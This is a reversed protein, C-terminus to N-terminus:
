PRTARLQINEPQCGSRVRSALAGMTLLTVAVLVVQEVVHRADGKYLMLMPGFWCYTVVAGAPLAFRHREGWGPRRAWLPFLVLSGALLALMATLVLWAPPDTLMKLVQFASSALFATVGVTIPSPALRESTRAKHAPRAGLLVLVIAAATAAGLQEPSARFGAIQYNLFWTAAAGLLFLAGVVTLGTRGLWPRGRRHPFLTETLAVPVLVSWVADLVVMFVVVLPSTGLAPVFGYGLWNEAGGFHPNFLSQDLLGEEIVGIAVALCVLAPWGGRRRVVLERALVAWCGNLCVFGLLAPFADLAIDGSVYEAILPALVSLVVVPVFRRM